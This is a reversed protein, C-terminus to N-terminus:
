IYNFIRRFISLLIAIASFFVIIGMLDGFFLSLMSNLSLINGSVGWLGLFLFVSSVMSCGISLSLVDAFRLDKWPYHKGTLSQFVRCVLLPAAAYIGAMMMRSGLPLFPFVDIFNYISGLFIGVSGRFGFLMVIVLKAGAPFYVLHVWREVASWWFLLNNNLFVFLVWVCSIIIIILFDGAKRKLLAQYIADLAHETVVFVGGNTVLM